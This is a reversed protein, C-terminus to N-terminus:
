SYVKIELYSPLKITKVQDVLMGFIIDIFVNEIDHGADMVNFGANKAFVWDHWKVDGTILLDIGNLKNLNDKFVSFGAGASIAISQIPNNDNYIVKDINFKTKLISALVKPRYQYRFSGTVVSGYNKVKTIELQKAIYINLGDMSNDVNTHYSLIAIKKEKIKAFIALEFKDMKYDKNKLFFPHHSLIVNCDNQNAKDIAEQTIDLCVIVGKVEMTSSPTYTIGSEDWKEQKTLPYKKTIIKHLQTVNM